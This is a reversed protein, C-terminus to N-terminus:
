VAIPYIMRLIYTKVDNALMGDLRNIESTIEDHDMNAFEGEKEKSELGSEFNKKRAILIRRVKWERFPLLAAASVGAAVGVLIQCYLFPREMDFRRLKFGALEAILLPFGGTFMQLSVAHNMDAGGGGVVDATMPGFNVWNVGLLIGVAFAFGILQAYTTVFIWFVFSFITILITSILTVNVRGIKDSLFGLLPRGVTQAVSQVTTVNSGQKYSLGISSGYASLSFLLISYSLSYVMNWLMLCILPIQRMLDFRFLFATLEIYLPKKDKSTNKIPRYTRILIISLVLMFGCVFSQMRLAWAIGLKLAHNPDDAYEPKDMYTKIIQDVPRSFIIGGLGGGATAIGQAISRKKLFWTPLIVFTSGAVLAWGISLLFGQFMVLQVVTKSISALWYSLFTLATGISMLIKYNVRRSLGNTFACALFSLGLNMGGIMVYQEMKGNHFYDTSIYYNLYVGFCANLGWSFTNIALVCFASTWAWFGGDPPKNVIDYRNYRGSDVVTEEKQSSSSSLDGSEEDVPYNDLSTAATGVKRLDNPDFSPNPEVQTKAFKNDEIVNSIITSTRTIINNNTHHKNGNEGNYPPVDLNNSQSTEISSISTLDGSM